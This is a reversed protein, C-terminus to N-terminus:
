GGMSSALMIVAIAISGVLFAAGLATVAMLGLIRALASTRHPTPAPQLPAAPRRTRPSRTPMAIQQAISV